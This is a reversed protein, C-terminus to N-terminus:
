PSAFLSLYVQVYMSYRQSFVWFRIVTTAVLPPLQIYSPRSYHLSMNNMVNVKSNNSIHWLQNSFFQRWCCIHLFTMNFLLFQENQFRGEIGLTQKVPNELHKSILYTSNSPHLALSLYQRPSTLIHLPGHSCCMFICPSNIVFIPPHLESLFCSKLHYISM